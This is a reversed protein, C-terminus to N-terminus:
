QAGQGETMWYCTSSEQSLGSFIKLVAVTQPQLKTNRQSYEYSTAEQVYGHYKTSAYPKLLTVETNNVFTAIGGQRLKGSKWVEYWSGDSLIQRDVVYDYNPPCNSLDANAKGSLAGTFEAAQATSAPVAANFACVWPYLTTHAPQVTDAAGYIANSKSADLTVTALNNPGYPGTKGDVQMGSNPGAMINSFTINPVGAGKQTIGETSNAMKIYNALKPLRLSGSVEDAVYYPCEGYTTIAADYEAKTKCLEPHSKVWTYFDPYLTSANTYYEGTWLPLCGPNDAALNSQSLVIQGIALGRSNQAGSLDAPIKYPVNGVDLYGIEPSTFNHMKDGSETLASVDVKDWAPTFNATYKVGSSVIINAMKGTFFDFLTTASDTEVAGGFVLRMSATLQLYHEAAKTGNVYLNVKYNAASYEYVAAIHVWGSQDPLTVTTTQDGSGTFDFYLKLSINNGGSVVVPAVGYFNNYRSNGFLHATGANTWDDLKLWYEVTHSGTFAQATTFKFATGSLTFCPHGDVLGSNWNSAGIEALLVTGLKNKDYFYRTGVGPVYLLENAM